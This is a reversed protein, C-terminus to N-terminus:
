RTNKTHIYYVDFAAYLQIYNGNKDYKIHEGDILSDFITKENTKSGTFIVNMNTDIMYIKGDSAIYLLKREGDAKDTVTYDNRINPQKNDEDQEIINELQLTFSSPGTFDRPM